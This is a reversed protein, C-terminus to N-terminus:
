GKSGVIAAYQFSNRYDRAGRDAAMDEGGFTRYIKYVGRLQDDLALGARDEGYLDKYYLLASWNALSEDLVPAREPDSGVAIGWWQQAVVRAVTFELSDELSGRQERVIEPLARVAEADFDVYFASAICGLGTFETSGLRSSLPVEAVNVTKFPLPGFRAAYIRAAEAAKVLVRRGTNEHGALYISRVKLNGVTREEARLSRGAVLAFDRLHTGAYHRVSRGPRHPSRVPPRVEEASAFLQVDAPAEVSAEYDAVDAFVFDGVTAESKRRWDGGSRVALIPHPTGLLMVGRSSFNVDRAQRAERDSRFVANVQQVVHALLNTEQANIEPFRGAFKIEIEAAEQPAITEHLNVRLVTEHEELAFPLIQKRGGEDGGRVETVQLRPDEDAPPATESEDAARPPAPPALATPLRKNPYLHFYVVSLPRDDQNVWRVLETGTYTREDFDLALQLRYHSRPAPAPQTERNEAPPVRRRASQSHAPPPGFVGALVALVFFGCRTADISFFNPARKM